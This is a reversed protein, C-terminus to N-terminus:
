PTALVPGPAARYLHALRPSVIATPLEPDFWRDVYTWHYPHLLYPGNLGDANAFEQEWAHTWHGTARSLAWSGIAPIHRPMAMLDAEFSAITDPPADPRVTLLLTRKIRRGPLEVHASAIQSLAVAEAGPVDPATDSVLDFSAGRGGVSGPLDPGGDAGPVTTDAHALIVWRPM